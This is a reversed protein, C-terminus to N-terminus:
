DVIKLRIEDSNAKLEPAYMGFARAPLASFKGPIEARMRYAIGHKGRPLTRTFFVVKEDRLEMYAGLGNRTYGSRVEVPEFGAAKMDEFVIYEYDNKSDVILEIEVLDGSKLTALDDLRVRDYKETKQDLAQGRSGATKVTKDARELKYVARDTKIELGTKTIFDELTFYSLCANFYLPGTGTRRIELKHKGAEVADGFLIFANDFAFLNKPTIAVTKMKRGDVSIEVTMDPNTEGSANLYDAFAEICFATDRTSNWWTAHKRNNLLYKVLRSATEGKPDTRALLKLYFAHSEIENGYWYWWYGDNGLELWATQNEDDRVLYQEINRIVMDLKETEGQKHLAIGLLTKGYMSLRNRDEYLYDVMETSKEGAEALVSCVLADTNDAHHKWPKRKPKERGNRIRRTQDEQYALLWAVGREIVSPVIAVGNEEAIKLGRVVVATTHPYSQEGWGSFWGWGGDACQMATLREVGTKVMKELEKEDFVPDRGFRKWQAAREEAKGLEQANLNVRRDRIDKLNVGMKKIVNQTIVTPLFRNLTQETCGYPYDALYPLADLMAGALTPSYRLELRSANIRRQEPVDFEVIATEADPRIIGCFSVTKDMGHVYVPFRMEMADSEIDTLAKMRVVAEGEAAASVRWDVRTEGNPEVTVRKPCGRSFSNELEPSFSNECEKPKLAPGDLELVVKATVQKDLYNHVNASLVVEDKQIFFRPAQMRVILNKATVAESVGEGVKTGHGMAWVKIKWATLNEPMAFRVTAEGNKDTTISSAWFATDAFEKRIAPEVMDSDGNTPTGPAEKNMEDAMEMPAPSRPAKAHSKRAGRVGNRKGGKMRGNGLSLSVGEDATLHGFIGLHQMSPENKDTINASHKTASTEIYSSHHRRWKWFFTKIEPVNSGGSVYEVSKDYVALVTSGVFPEGSFDTLRIGVEAEQGPRYRESSPEIAVNLMKKEPPVFIERIEMHAKGNSVTLAEVYFNPMDSKEIDIELEGSKGKMRMPKPMPCIGNVPRIFVLVAADARDTNIMLRAKEGPAYENKEAVIELANFRVDSGDFNEGRVVFLYGGEGSKGNKDIVTYSLRYQSPGATKMKLKAEGRDDTGLKWTEIPIESPTGDKGYSIRVLKLEGDGKVPKGDLTRANLRVTAIDGARYFGRNTWVAVSFPKRAVLVTGKGVITRRSMDTVEATIEYRHDSDGHFEKAALTDIRVEVMGDDGIKVENESVIEPPGSRVPRWWPWPRRHGWRGWGPYWDYEYAHWWYGPGYLWDWPRAPYWRATHKYRLVKYKVTANTVPAGFYYDARIKATVTDGLMVPDSPAEVKVEFEPKKYEEVRFHGSGIMYNGLAADEGLKFEGAYGGWEDASVWKDFLKEGKPNQIRIQFSQGAFESRDGLDYRAKRLWCKYKVTHGPRYVPRDTIVFMKRQNYRYNYRNPYWVNTFGLYAFRGSKTTATILWQMNRPMTHSSVDPQGSKKKGSLVIMGDPNTHEAFHKVNNHIERKKSVRRYGFFEVNAKEVPKGTVADAVYILVSEELPKKVIMTDNIWLVINGTNGNEMKAKLLWAGPKQLPTSVTIRKDFHNPRPSLKLTWEAAKEGVYKSQNQHLIRYGINRIDYKNYDFKRPSSKIYTKVDDLLRRENIAYAEFRVKKGNRFRYDITAGRGAPQSSVPEFVGWNGTIQRVKDKAGVRKYFEAAKGYQRRNEYIRALTHHENIEKFIRIFNFEGPLKFRRVGVALHAITEDDALTHIAYTGSAKGQQDEFAYGWQRMHALTHVGFRNHLFAAFRSLAANRYGHDTEMAQVLLWRWREGDSAANKWSDPLKHFVPNGGADVPAGKPGDWYGYGEEYDPLATLDTLYQLRWARHGRRNTMLIDAFSLFMNARDSKEKEDGTINMASVMLQIARARDREASSAYKGGGRRDGRYFEGGVIFGYRKGSEVHTKAAAWLLRRNDKHVKVTNEVLSDIESDRHLRSLCEVAHRLDDGVKGPDTGPDQCLKEWKVLADKFNGQDFEKQATKRLGTENGTAFVPYVFLFVLIPVITKKTKSM